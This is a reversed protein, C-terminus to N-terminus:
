LHSFQFLLFPFSLSERDASLLLLRPYPSPLLHLGLECGVELSLMWLGQPIATFTWSASHGQSSLSLKQTMTVQEFVAPYVPGSQGETEDDTFSTYHGSASLVAQSSSHSVGGYLAQCMTAAPYLHSTNVLTM